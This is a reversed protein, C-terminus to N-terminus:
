KKNENFWQIFKVCTEFIAEKKSEKVIDGGTYFPTKGSNNVISVHGQRINFVFDISEIKEVVQMLWEWSSHFNLDEIHYAKGNLIYCDDLDKTKQTTCLFEAILINKETTNM